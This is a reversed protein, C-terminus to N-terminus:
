KQGEEAMPEPSEAMGLSMLEAQIEPTRVEEKLDIGVMEQEGMVKELELEVM